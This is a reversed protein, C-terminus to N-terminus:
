PYANLTRADEELLLDTFGAITHLPTQLNEGAVAAFGILEAERERLATKAEHARTADARATGTARAAAADARERAGTLALVVVTLLLSTIIAAVLVVTDAAARGATLLATTPRVVVQWIHGALAVDVTARRDGTATGGEAWSAVEHTIGASSTETLAATVGTVGAHGLAVELLDDVRVSALVWGHFGAGTTHV